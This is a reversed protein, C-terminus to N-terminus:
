RQPCGTTTILWLYYKKHSLFLLYLPWNKKEKKQFFTDLRAEL